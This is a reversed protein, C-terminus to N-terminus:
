ALLETLPGNQDLGTVLLNFNERPAGAAHLLTCFLRNLTPNTPLGTGAERSEGYDNEVTKATMPYSVLHGTKLTGGLNGLLVIPWQTGQSHQREASDSMFVVLTNDLMTGNGEPISQLHKMLDATREAMFHHARRVVETGRVGLEPDPNGHGASHQGMNSFGKYNPGLSGMGSTITIVNTLGASLAATAIDFQADIVDPMSQPPAVAPRPAHRALRGDEKLTGLKGWRKSLSELADLHYDLQQREASGLGSKIQKLDGSVFDLLNKRALFDNRDTGAAGFLSEYALEPRCQIPIPKGQGWASLGYATSTDTYGGNIGLVVLPFLGPSIIALAADISEARVRRKDAPAQPLGSLTGYGAGHNPNLHTGRLGQIITLRDKFPEFPDIVKAPLKLADLSTIRTKETALPVGEPQVESERLGNEFVVFVFRKPAPPEVASAAQATLARALPSLLAGGAAVGALWKRRDIM